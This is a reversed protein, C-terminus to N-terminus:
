LRDCLDVMMKLGELLDLARPEPDWTRLRREIYEYVEDDRIDSVDISLAQAIWRCFPEFMVETNKFQYEPVGPNSPVIPM